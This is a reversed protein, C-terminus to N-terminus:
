RRRYVLLLLSGTLVLLGVPLLAPAVLEWALRIAVAILVFGALLQFLPLYLKM